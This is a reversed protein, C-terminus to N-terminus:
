INLYAGARKAERIRHIIYYSIVVGSRM